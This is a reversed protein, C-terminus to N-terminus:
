LREGSANTPIILKAKTEKHFRMLEGKDDTWYIFGRKWDMDQLYINKPWTPLLAQQQQLVQGQPGVQLQYIQNATSYLINLEVPLVCANPFIFKSELIVGVPQLM